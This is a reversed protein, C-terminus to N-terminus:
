EAIQYGVVNGSLDKVEEVTNSTLSQLYGLFEASVSYEVGNFTGGKIVITGNKEPCFMNGGVCTFEGGNIEVKAGGASYVVYGNIVNDDRTFTGGNITIKSSTHGNTVEASIAGRKGIFDGGNITMEGGYNNVLYAADKGETATTFTGGNVTVVGGDNALAQPCHTTDVYSVSTAAFTGGDVVLTGGKYNWLAAGGNSDIASISGGKVTMTGKNEVGRAVIAGGEEASIVITAGEKNQLAYYHRVGLHDERQVGAEVVNDKLNLTADTAHNALADTVFINGEVTIDKQRSLLAGALGNSTNVNADVFVLTEDLGLDFLVQDDGTKALEDGVNAIAGEPAILEKTDNKILVVINSTKYWYFSYGKSVPTLTDKSNYGAKDLADVAEDLTTPVKEASVIALQTNMQKVAQQDASLNAQNVLGIFTPILVAALIAIVAVVIVLEVITFGKKNLNKM